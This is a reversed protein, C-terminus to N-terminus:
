IHILSLKETIFGKGYRVNGWAAGSTVKRPRDKVHAIRPFSQLLGCDDCIYVKVGRSSGAAEYSYSFNENHCNDCIFNDM